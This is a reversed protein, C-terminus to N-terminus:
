PVERVSKDRITVIKKSHAVKWFKEIDELTKGKTEPILKWTLWLGPACLVAFTWFTAAPGWHNSKLMLPTMQGVFFNAVWLSLTALSMARGRISTPFIESIIIWSVPGFSFAFCAIFLLIFILIWPGELVNLKFLFGLILLSLVAGSIGLLLLPKRGWRDVTFIAVFTFLVNIIGITVQGGLADGLSFGAKDLIAPGFYIIANIGSVQSLFPLALGIILAVRYVPSFLEKLSGTEGKMSEKIEMVEGIAAGKTTIKQLHKLAEIEKGNMVLWRPSEPVLFLFLLFFFAPIMGIGIMSRWVDVTVIWHLLGNFSNHLSVNVLYANTFYAAVIGLTIALQYLAVMRGRFHSPSFEAIYLPCIMSAVGIGLGGVLRFSILLESSNALMCGLASIFFLSASLLMIKKRGFRDSLKGAAAVGIVCGLLASSVFWGEMFLSFHFDKSVFGLVGSIVATDFGFLFGGIAAIFCVLFFYKKNPIVQKQKM